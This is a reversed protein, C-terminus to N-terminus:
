INTSFIFLCVSQKLCVCNWMQKYTEGDASLSSIFNIVLTFWYTKPHVYKLACICCIFLLKSVFSRIELVLMIKEPKRM